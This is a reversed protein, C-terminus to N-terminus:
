RRLLTLCTQQFVVIHVLSHWRHLMHLNGVLVAGKLWLIVLFAWVIVWPQCKRITHLHIHLWLQGPCCNLFDELFLTNVYSIIDGPLLWAFQVASATILITSCRIRFHLSESYSRCSPSGFRRLVCWSFTEVSAWQM